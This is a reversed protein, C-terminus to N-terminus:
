SPKAADETKFRMYGALSSYLPLEEDETSDGEGNGPRKKRRKRGAAQGELVKTMFDGSAEDKLQKMAPGYTEDGRLHEPPVLKGGEIRCGKSYLVKWTEGIKIRVLDGTAQADELSDHGRDGGMQISRNLQTSSLMKLGYRLPLGRPHPFLLVTDVLSPHCLRVANLDNDIAHGILPTQPTLFSCLLDRAAQPNEVIPLASTPGQGNAINASSSSAKYQSYAIANQFSEPWVGSFRSNLDIIIGLPRVLVDVLPEAAPWSVATLRILELGHTTYGMECDFTVANVANGHKDLAPEENEPTTIFPLTAALRAASNTKFVHDEQLTCGPSGVVNNCCPYYPEKPLGSVVDGRTKHPIIKKNPHHRCPGNSTLRGEASRDQWVQFRASCRDCVEFNKSAEVAAAAENIATYTPPSTVYGFKELKLGSQDAVLCPLILLEEATTLGTNLPKYSNAVKPKGLVTDLHNIWADPKMKKYLAIRQKVVNSYVLPQEKAIREEEDLALKVLQQENLMRGEHGPASLVAENLQVLAAHLHKLYLTRKAHGAPDKALLRPNLSEGSEAAATYSQNKSNESNELRGADQRALSQTTVKGHIPPPTVPKTLSPLSQKPHLTPNAASQGSIDSSKPGANRSAALESRIQNAISPPKEELRDYTIKRRKLAPEGSLTFQHTAISTTATAQTANNVPVDSAEGDKPRLDHSFICNTLTCQPAYPCGIGKFLTTTTFVM